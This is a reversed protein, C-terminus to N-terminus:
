VKLSDVIIVQDRFPRKYEWRLSTVKKQMILTGIFPVMGDWRIDPYM